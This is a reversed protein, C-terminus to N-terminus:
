ERFLKLSQNVITEPVQPPSFGAYLRQQPDILFITSTHSIQYDGATGVPQKLYGAGLQRTLGNIEAEVGTVGIFEQNFFAVYEALQKPMDRQPDVSIFVVQIKAPTETIEQQLREYVTKLVTMTTPCIDPCSTYGFFLFTWKGNLRELTFPQQHQDVLTFAQLPKPEPWLIPQLDSVNQSRSFLWFFSALSLIVTVLTILVLKLLINRSM